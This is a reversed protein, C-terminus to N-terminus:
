MRDSVAGGVLLFLVQPGSIAIGVFSLAGPANSMLYVQWTLAVLFVGDGLLSVSVGTMLLLFRRHRLPALLKVRQAVPPAVPPLTTTSM